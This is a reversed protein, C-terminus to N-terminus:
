KKALTRLFNVVHWREDPSLAEAYSPMVAGGASLYSQWYGDTRVKHLEPNTLDAPPVFKTSVPGDGRGSAGHCPTCYIAYLESGKRVSEANAAVPNRRAAAAERDAPSHYLQGGTRPLSGTPMSYNYEGPMIRQTYFMNHMWRYGVIGALVAGIGGVLLLTLLFVYKMM